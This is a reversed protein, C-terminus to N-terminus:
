AAAERAEPEAQPAGPVLRSVAVYLLPVFFIALATASLMGGFVGTGISNQIESAAGKAFVLPVVGLIFALSTMVIPRLRLRAAQLTSRNLGMGGERLHRAYEVVLIANKASLGIITVLGVKFFVDNDAGRLLVATVAGLVGLPVVLM